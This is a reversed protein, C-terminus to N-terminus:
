SLLPKSKTVLQSGSDRTDNGSLKSPDSAPQGGIHSVKHPQTIHTANYGTQLTVNRDIARYDSASIVENTTLYSGSAPSSPVLPTDVMM